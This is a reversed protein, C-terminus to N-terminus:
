GRLTRVLALLAARGEDTLDAWAAVVERLDDDESSNAANDSNADGSACTSESDTSVSSGTLRGLQINDTRTRDGAKVGGFAPNKTKTSRVAQAGVSDPESWPVPM